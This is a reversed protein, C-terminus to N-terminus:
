INGALEGPKYLELMVRLKGATIPTTGINMVIKNDDATASARYAKIAADAGSCLLAGAVQGARVVEGLGNV